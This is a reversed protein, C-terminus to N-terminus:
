AVQLPLQTDMRISQLDNDLLWASFSDFGCHLHQVDCTVLQILKDDTSVMRRVQEHARCGYPCLMELFDNEDLFGRNHHDYKVRLAHMLEEDVLGGDVLATYAIVGRNEKDLFRFNELLQKRKKKALLPPTQVRMEQLKHLDFMQNMLDVDHDTAKLWILKMMDARTCKTTSSKRSVRSASANDGLHIEPRRGLLYRVCRMCLLRDAKSKAFFELFEGFDIDDSGDEDILSWLKVFCGLEEFSGRAQEFIRSRDTSKWNENGIEGFVLIRLSECAERQRMLFLKM